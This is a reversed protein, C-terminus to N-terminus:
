PEWTNLCMRSILLNYLTNAEVLVYRVRIEQSDMGLCFRARINLYGFTDVRESSFGVIQESYLIILDEDIDMKLFTKWSIINVSSGQDILIKSIAYNTLKISIVIPDDHDFNPAKLDKDLFTILPMSKVRNEVLHMIKLARIHRKRTSRTHGGSAFGRYITNIVSRLPRDRSKSM